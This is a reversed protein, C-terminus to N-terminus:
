TESVQRQRPLLLHVAFGAATALVAQYVVSGQYGGGVLFAADLGTTWWGALEGLGLVHWGFFGACWGGVVWAAQGGRRVFLFASVAAVANFALAIGTLTAGPSWLLTAATQVVLVGVVLGIGLRTKDM